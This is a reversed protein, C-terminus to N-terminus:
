INLTKLGLIKKAAEELSAVADADLLQPQELRELPIASRLSLRLMVTHPDPAYRNLFELIRVARPRSEVEFVPLVAAVREMLRKMQLRVLGLPSGQEFVVSCVFDANVEKLLILKDSSEITVQMEASWSKLAKLGERNARVLDGFYTAVEEANLDSGEKSWSEFLLCDPMTTVFVARIATLDRVADALPQHM